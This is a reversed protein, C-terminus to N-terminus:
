TSPLIITSAKWQIFVPNSRELGYFPRTGLILAEVSVVYGKQVQTFASFSTTESPSINLLRLEVGNTWTIEKESIEVISRHFGIPRVIKATIENGDQDLTRVKLQIDKLWVSDTNGKEINVGIVLYDMSENLATRLSDLKIKLNIILWGTILKYMFFCFAAFLALVKFLQEINNLAGNFEFYIILFITLPFLIICMLSLTGSKM